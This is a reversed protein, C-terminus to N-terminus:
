AVQRCTWVIPFHCLLSKFGHSDLELTWAKLRWDLEQRERTLNSSFRIMYSSSQNCLFIFLLKIFICVGLILMHGLLKVGSYISLIFSLLFKYMLIWLLIIRLLGFSLCLGFTWWSIFLYAFYLMDVCHFLMWGYFPIFYLHMSCCHMFKSFVTRFSVHWVSFNM